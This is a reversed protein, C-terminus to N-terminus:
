FEPPRLGNHQSGPLSGKPKIMVDYFLLFPSLWKCFLGLMHVLDSWLALMLGKQPHHGLLRLEEWKAGWMQFTRGGKAAGSQPGPKWCMFKQLICELWVWVMALAQGIILILDNAPCRHSV